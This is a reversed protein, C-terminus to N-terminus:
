SAESAAMNTFDPASPTAKGVQDQLVSAADYVVTQASSSASSLADMGDEYVQVGARGDMNLASNPPQPIITDLRSAIDTPLMQKINSLVDTELTAGKELFEVVTDEVEQVATHVYTHLSVVLSPPLLM